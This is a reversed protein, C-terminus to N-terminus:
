HGVHGHSRAPGCALGNPGSTLTPCKWCLAACMKDAFFDDGTFQLNNKAGRVDFFFPDSRWGAFFRYGNAETVCAEVILQGGDGM